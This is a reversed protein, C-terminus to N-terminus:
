HQDCHLEDSWRHGLRVCGSREDGAIFRVSTSVGVINVPEKGLALVLKEAGSWKQYIKCLAGLYVNFGTFNSVKNMISSRSIIEQVSVSTEHCCCCPFSLGIWFNNKLFIVLVHAVEVDEEIECNSGNDGFLWFHDISACYGFVGFM